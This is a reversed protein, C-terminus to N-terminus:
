YFIKECNVPACADLSSKIKLNKNVFNNEPKVKYPLLYINQITILM